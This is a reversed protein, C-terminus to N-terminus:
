AYLEALKGQFKFMHIEDGEDVSFLEATADDCVINQKDQIGLEKFKKYMLKTVKHRELETGEDLELYECISEPVPQPANIGSKSNNKRKTKLKKKKLQKYMNELTKRDNKQERLLSILIKERDNMKGIITFFTEEITPEDIVEDDSESIELVIPEPENKTAKAKAKSKSKSKSKSKKPM